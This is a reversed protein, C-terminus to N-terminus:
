PLIFKVGIHWIDGMSVEHDHQMIINNLRLKYKKFRPVEIVSWVSRQMNARMVSMLFCLTTNIYRTVCAVDINTNVTDLM